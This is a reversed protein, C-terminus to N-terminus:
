KIIVEVSADRDGQKGKLKNLTSNLRENEEQLDDFKELQELAEDVEDNKQRM